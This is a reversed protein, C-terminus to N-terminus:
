EGIAKTLKKDAISIFNAPMAVARRTRKPYRNVSADGGNADTM